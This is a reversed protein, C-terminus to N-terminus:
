ARLSTPPQERAQYNSVHRISLATHTGLALLMVPITVNCPPM